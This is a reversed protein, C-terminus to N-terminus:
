EVEETFSPQSDAITCSGKVPTGKVYMDYSITANEGLFESIVILVDYKLAEYQGDSLTTMDIELMQTEISTSNRRANNLFTYIADDTYIRKGSVSSQIQYNNFSADSNESIITKYQDIQPNYALSLADVGIGELTWTPTEANAGTNLYHAVDKRKMQAM